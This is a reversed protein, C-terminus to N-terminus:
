LSTKEKKKCEKNKLDRYNTEIFSPVIPLITPYHNGNKLSFIQLVFHFIM